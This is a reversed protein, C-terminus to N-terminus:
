ILELINLGTERGIGKLNMGDYSVSTKKLM